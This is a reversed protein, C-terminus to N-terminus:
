RLCIRGFERIGYDCFSSRHNNIIKSFSARLAEKSADSSAFLQDNPGILGGSFVQFSQSCSFISRINQNIDANNDILVPKPNIPKDRKKQSHGFVLGKAMSFGQLLEIMGCNFGKLLHLDSYIPNYSVM